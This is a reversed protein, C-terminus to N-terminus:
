DFQLTVYNSAYNSAYNLFCKVLSLKPTIIFLINYLIPLPANKLLIATSPKPTKPYLTFHTFASPFLKRYLNYGPQVALLKAVTM